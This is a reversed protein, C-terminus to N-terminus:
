YGGTEKVTSSWDDWGNEYSWVYNFRAFGADPGSVEPQVTAADGIRISTADIGIGALTWDECVIISDSVSVIGDPTVIDIYLVYLGARAPIFDDATAPTYDGTELVTSSWTEWKGEYAWVYNFQYDTLSDLGTPSIQVSQGVHIDSGSVAQGDLTVEIGYDEVSSASAVQPSEAILGDDSELAVAVVPSCFVAFLLVALISTRLRQLLNDLGM